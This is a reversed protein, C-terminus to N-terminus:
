IYHASQVCIRLDRRDIRRVAVVVEYLYNPVSQRNLSALTRMLIKRRNYTPIVISASLPM